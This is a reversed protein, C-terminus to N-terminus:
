AVKRPPRLSGRHVTAEVGVAVVVEHGVIVTVYGSAVAGGYVVIATLVTSSSCEGKSASDKSHARQLDM